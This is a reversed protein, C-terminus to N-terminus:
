CSAEAALKAVFHLVPLPDLILYGLALFSTPHPVKIRTDWLWPNIDLHYSLERRGVDLIKERSGLVKLEQRWIADV